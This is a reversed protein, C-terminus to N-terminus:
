KKLNDYKIADGFAQLGKATLQTKKEEALSIVDGLNNFLASLRTYAENYLAATLTQSDKNETTSRVLATYKYELNEKYQRWKSIYFMLENWVELKFDTTPRGATLIPTQGEPTTNTAYGSPWVWDAPTAKLILTLAPTDNTM